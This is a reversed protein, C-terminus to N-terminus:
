QRQHLIRPEGFEQELVELVGLVNIIGHGYGYDFNRGKPSKATNRIIERLRSPSVLSSPYASRIAAIVGAAVPTSTSTGTDAPGVGSGYFHTYCAVDPKQDELRGPGRTSYGTLINDVTVGGVCLVDPHSNAGLIGATTLDRCTSKPCEVGCNGASFVIDAGAANLKGVTQNFIHNPNDSYNMETGVPFDWSPHYIGWSNTIVLSKIETDEQNTLKSILAQYLVEYSRIVDSLYHHILPADNNPKTNFIPHDVLTCSPASICVSFACMTGHDTAAKGFEYNGSPGWSLKKNFDPEKGKTKLYDLNFGNDVIAVLVGKGKMENSHLISVNLLKEVDSDRGIPENSCVPYIPKIEIDSYFGIIDDNNKMACVFESVQSDDVSVRAIYSKESSSRWQSTNFVPKQSLIALPPYRRDVRLGKTSKFARPLSSSNFDAGVGYFKSEERYQIIFYPM